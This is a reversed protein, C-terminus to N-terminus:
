RSFTQKLYRASKACFRDHCSRFRREATCEPWSMLLSNTSRSACGPVLNGISASRRAQRHAPLDRAVALERPMSQLDLKSIESVTGAFIQGPLNDLMVSARQGTQVLEIDSDTVHLVAEFRTPDGVLRVLTGSDFYTGLNHVELPTGTWRELTDATQPRPPLEPPPLLAGGIPALITLREADHRYQALHEDLDALAAQAAPVEAGDAVGQLRRAELNALFLRQTDREATLRAVELEVQSNVLRAILNVKKSKRASPWMGPWPAPCTSTYGSPMASSSWWRCMLACPCEPLGSGRGRGRLVPRFEVRRLAARRASAAGPPSDLARPPLPRGSWPLWRREALSCSWRRLGYPKALEGLAWLVAIVIMFRYVISAVAYLALLGSGRVAAGARRRHGYGPVLSGVRSAPGLVIRGLNPVELWDSLIYYGDFRLLPNGNLLLTGVSCVLITNMCLSNFIGPVSFWWLFTCSAALIGEVYIGAAAIAMRQWKSALMWSDSVNCYLCPTFVLLMVGMEHCDSGSRRCALAHGLEHLIKTLAIALVLWPLNAASLITRFEPLRM